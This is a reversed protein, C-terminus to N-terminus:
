RKYQKYYADLVQITLDKGFAWRTAQAARFILRPKETTLIGALIEEHHLVSPDLSFLLGEDSGYPELACGRIKDLSVQLRVIGWYGLRKYFEAVSDLFEDLRCFLESETIANVPNGQQPTYEVMSQKYYYLGFCNLETHYTKDGKGVLNLIVGDAVIKAPSLGPLPFSPGTGYYDNVKVSQYVDNM